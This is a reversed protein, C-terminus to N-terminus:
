PNFTPWTNSRSCQAVHLCFCHYYLLIFSMCWSIVFITCINLTPLHLYTATACPLKRTYIPCLDHCMATVRLLEKQRIYTTRKTSSANVIVETASSCRWWRETVWTGKPNTHGSEYVAACVYWTCLMIYYYRHLCSKKEFSLSILATTHRSAAFQLDLQESVRAISPQMTRQLIM